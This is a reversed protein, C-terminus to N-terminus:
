FGSEEAMERCAKEIAQMSGLRPIWGLSRLKEISYEVRPVDGLWGRDGGTYRISLSSGAARLAQQAIASVTAGQDLPGINYFALREPANTWVHFLADLLETVHLYPKRQTGDGLVELYKPGFQLKKFLDYIIGHTCRSGVVNPFRFIAVRDLFRELAASIAAESALKMAGYNSIPFLPGQDEHIQGPMVGYIASTSAFSLSKIDWRRALELINVTTLFTNRLDISAEATGSPIDSNAAFHWVAEFQVGRAVDGLVTTLENIDALDARVLEFRGSQLALQLNDERGSVLNDIGIVTKGADLLRDVLHSGIFGAAGTVLVSM